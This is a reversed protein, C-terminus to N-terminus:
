SFAEHAEYRRNISRKSDNRNKGESRNRKKPFLATRMQQHADNKVSIKLPMAWESDGSRGKPIEKKSPGNFSFM